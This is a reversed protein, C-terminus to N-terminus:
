GPSHEAEVRRAPPADFRLPWFFPHVPIVLPERSGTSLKTELRAAWVPWQLDALPVIAISPWWAWAIATVVLGALVARPVARHVGDVTVTLALLILATPFV